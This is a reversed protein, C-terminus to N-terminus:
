DIRHQAYIVVITIENYLRVSVETEQLGIISGHGRPTANFGIIVSHADISIRPSERIILTRNAEDGGNLIITPTERTDGIRCEPLDFVMSGFVPDPGRCLALECLHIAICVICRTNEDELLSRRRIALAEGISV